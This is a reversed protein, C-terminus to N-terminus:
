ENDRGAGTVLNEAVSTQIPAKGGQKVDTFQVTPIEGSTPGPDGHISKGFSADDGGRSPKDAVYDEFPSSTFDKPM